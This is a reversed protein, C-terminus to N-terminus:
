ANQLMETESFEDMAFKLGRKDKFTLHLCKMSKFIRQCVLFVLSLCDRLIVFRSVQNSLYRSLFCM